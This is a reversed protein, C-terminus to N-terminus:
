SIPPKGTYMRCFIDDAREDGKLLYEWLVGPVGKEATEDEFFKLLDTYRDNNGLCDQFVKPDSLDLNESAAVEPQRIPTQYRTNFEWM